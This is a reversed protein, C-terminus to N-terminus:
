RLINGKNDKTHWPRIRHLAAHCNPCVTIFQEAGYKEGGDLEVPPVTLHLELLSGCSQYYLDPRINCIECCDAPTIKLSAKKEITHHLHGLLIGEPFGIDEGLSGYESFYYAENRRIAIAIEHLEEHRNEFEFAVDFFMSGVNPDRKGTRINSQMRKLQNTIGTENRFDARRNTSPYFPLRNLLVSLEHMELSESSIGEKKSSFLVDLALIVEDRTFSEFAM